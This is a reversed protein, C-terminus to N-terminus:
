AHQRDHGPPRDSQQERAAADVMQRAREGRQERMLDWGHAHACGGDDEPPGILMTGSAGYLGYNRGDRGWTRGDVEYVQDDADHVEDPGDYTVTVEGPQTVVVGAHPQRRRRTGALACTIAPSKLSRTWTVM